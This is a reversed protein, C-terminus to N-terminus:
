ARHATVIWASSGLWVGDDHLHAALVERLRDEAGASEAPDLRSLITSISSFGRVWDLAAAVDHGYYVPEDVDNFSVGSFGAGRLVEEVVAPDGLSFADPGDSAATGPRNAAEVSQRIAVAWENRERAQWVMMALRGDPRLAGGINAFAAPPDDFFMTGFRSIALDFRQQPFQYVQADAHDFSVNGIGQALALHRARQIASESVDVGLASGSRAARAAQRTTHGTGCGIDIVADDIRVGAVQRLVENHRRLEADYDTPSPGPERSM